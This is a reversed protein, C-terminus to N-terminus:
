SCSVSGPLNYSGPGVESINHYKNLVGREPNHTYQSIKSMENNIKPKEIRRVSSLTQM